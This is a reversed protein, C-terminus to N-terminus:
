AAGASRTEGLVDGSFPVGGDDAPCRHAQAGARCEGQSGSDQFSFATGTRCLGGSGPWAPCGFSQERGGGPCEANFQFLGAWNEPVSAPNDLYAEYLEEVYPANGAFLYSNDQYEQMMIGVKEKASFWFAAGQRGALAQRLLGFGGAACPM